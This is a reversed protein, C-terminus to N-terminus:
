PPAGASGHQEHKIMATVIKLHTCFLFGLVFGACIYFIFMCGIDVPRQGRMLCMLALYVFHFGVSWMLFMQEVTLAHAVMNASMVVLYAIMGIGTFLSVAITFDYCKSLFRDLERARMRARSRDEEDAADNDTADSLLQTARAMRDAQKRKFTAKNIQEKDDASLILDSTADNIIVNPAGIM